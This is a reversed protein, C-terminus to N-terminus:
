NNCAKFASSILKNFLNNFEIRYDFALYEIIFKHKNTSTAKYKTWM